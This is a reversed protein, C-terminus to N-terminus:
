TPAPLPVPLRGTPVATGALVRAAARLSPLRLGFTLLAPLPLDGATFPNGLCLHGAPRGLGRVARALERLGSPTRRRAASVLWIVGANASLLELGEPPAPAAPDYTALTLGPLEPGIAAVLADAVTEKDGAGGATERGPAILLVGQGATALLGSLNGHGTL